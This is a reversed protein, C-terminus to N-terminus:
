KLKGYSCSDLGRPQMILQLREDNAKRSVNLPVNATCLSDYAAVLRYKGDPLLPLTYAGKKDTETWSVRRHASDATFIVICVNPIATQAKDQAIGSLTQLSLPGYDTSNHNQYEIKACRDQAGALSSLAMTFVLVWLIRM